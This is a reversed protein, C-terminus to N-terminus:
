IKKGALLGVVAGFGIKWAFGMASFVENQFGTPSANSWISAIAIQAIGAL